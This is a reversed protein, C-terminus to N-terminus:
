VSKKERQIKTAIDIFGKFYKTTIKDQQCKFSDDVSKKKEKITKIRRLSGM